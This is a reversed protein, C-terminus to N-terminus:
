LLLSPFSAAPSSSTKKKVALTKSIVCVSIIVSHAFYHSIFFCVRSETTQCLEKLRNLFDDAMKNQDLNKMPKM